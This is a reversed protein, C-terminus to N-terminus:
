KSRGVFKIEYGEQAFLAKLKTERQEHTLDKDDNIDMADAALRTNLVYRYGGDDDIDHQRLFGTVEGTEIGDPGATDMLQEDDFGCQRAIQGLCCMYGEKNLLATDGKGRKFDGEQGCRWTARDITFSTKKQAAPKSM